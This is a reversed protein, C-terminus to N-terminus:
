LKGKDAGGFSVHVHATHGKPHGRNNDPDYFLEAIGFRAKNKLLYQYLQELKARGNAQVGIDLAEDFDHFGGKKHGGIDARGTGPGYGTDYHFDPHQWIGGYGMAQLQKGVAITRQKASGQLTQGSNIQGRIALHIPADDGLATLKARDGTSMQSLAEDNGSQPLPDLGKQVRARRVVEEPTLGFRRGLYHVSESYRGNNDPTYDPERFGTTLDSLTTADLVKFRANAQSRVSADASIAGQQFMGDKFFKGEADLKKTAEFWQDRAEAIAEDMSMDSGIMLARARAAINDMAALEFANQNPAGKTGLAANELPITNNISSILSPMDKKIAKFLDSEKIGATTVEANANPALRNQFSSWVEYPANGMDAATLKYDPGKQELLQKIRLTEEEVKMKRETFTRSGSFNRDVIDRPIGAALQREREARLGDATQDVNNFGEQSVINQESRGLNFEANRRQRADKALASWRPHESYAKGTVPNTSSGLESLKDVSLQASSLANWVDENSKLTKGDGTTLGRQTAFFDSVSIDGDQLRQLDKETTLAAEQRNFQRTYSETQQAAERRLRPYVNKATYGPNALGMGTQESWNRNFVDRVRQYDAGPQVTPQGAELRKKNVNALWTEFAPGYSELAAEAKANAAIVGRWGTSNRVKAGDASDRTTLTGSKDKKQLNNSVAIEVDTDTENAKREEDTYFDSLSEQSPEKFNNFSEAWIEAAEKKVAQNKLKTTEKIATNSFKVLSEIGKLRTDLNGAEIDANKQMQTLISNQDTATTSYSEILSPTPDGVDLVPVIGEFQNAQYSLQEM